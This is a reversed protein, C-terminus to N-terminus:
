SIGKLYNYVTARSLGLVRGIYVSANRSKFAGQASLESIIEQKEERSLAELSVQRQRCAERVFLNIKEYVDEKFLQQAEDSITIGNGLFQQLMQSAAAFMSVDLNICLFGEAKGKQSYLVISISKLRRGDWNTKEYPGIVTETGQCDVKDLYSPDGVERRSIPNFIAAIQDKELDHVVAEAFPHLLRAFGEAFPIAQQLSLKSM